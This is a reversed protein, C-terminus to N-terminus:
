GFVCSGPSITMPNANLYDAVSVPKGGPRQWKEIVFVGDGTAVTIGENSVSLVEGPQTMGQAEDCSAQWVRWNEGEWSLQAIPWPTFARVQRELEAASKNWDLQADQKSIKGAYTVKSEDQKEPKFDAPNKLYTLLAEAGVIALKDHLTESTDDREIPCSARYLMDGADLKKVMNMITVGSEADGALISQQIPSAGRWRPLLSAHVNISAERPIALVEESLLLGYAAVVLYDPQWARLQDVDTKEKLNAPQLVPIGAAQAAVKVPPATLVRGRGKPRDPQTYVAVVEHESAILAELCPVSFDPTGAFVIRM